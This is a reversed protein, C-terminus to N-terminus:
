RGRYTPFGKKGDYRCRWPVGPTAMAGNLNECYAGTPRQLADLKAQLEPFPQLDAAKMHCGPLQYGSKDTTVKYRTGEVHAVMMSTANPGRPTDLEVVVCRVPQNTLWGNMERGILARGFRHDSPMNSILGVNMVIRAIAARDMREPQPKGDVAPSPPNQAACASLMAALGFLQLSQKHM